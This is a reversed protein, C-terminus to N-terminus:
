DKGPAEPRQSPFLIVDRISDLGLLLMALRDIGIGAGAAPPMGYRLAKIYDDDYQMAEEDGAAAQAVQQEFVAHQTYPNNLESFGNAIERGGVFLEFRDTLELGHEQGPRRRALPSVSAPYGTIFTPQILTDEIRKEFLLLQLKGIDSSALATEVKDGEKTQLQSRLYDADHAQEISCAGHQCIVEALSLRTFKASLDIAEGTASKIGTAVWPNEPNSVLRQFLDEVLDMFAHYDHYVAYFELMTFEPNHQESMGENRFSRNIEYVKDFGGVLLRKLYLEPAIRLFLRQDLATHQTVFPKAAAGGQVQHLMPTEVELYGHIDFYDRIKTVLQARARFRQRLEPQIALGLYRRKSQRDATLNDKVTFPQLCKSLLIISVLKVTLEGKRTNFLTGTVGIIDGFDLDNLQDLVAADDATAYLQITNDDSASNTESGDSINAFATKGAKRRLVLRGALSVQSELELDSVQHIVHSRQFENPYAVGAELQQAIKAERREIIEKPTLSSGDTM